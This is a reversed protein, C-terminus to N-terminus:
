FERDIVLAVGDEDDEDIGARNQFRNQHNQQTTSLTRVAPAVHEM